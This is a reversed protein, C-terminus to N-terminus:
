GQACTDAGYTATALRSGAAANDALAQTHSAPPVCIKDTSRAERYVFGEKCTGSAGPCDSGTCVQSTGAGSDQTGGSGGSGQSGDAGQTGPLTGSSTPPITQAQQAAQATGSDAVPTKILPGNAPGSTCGCILILAIVMAICVPIGWRM